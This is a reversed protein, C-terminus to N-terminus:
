VGYAIELPESLGLGHLELQSVTHLVVFLRAGDCRVAGSIQTYVWEWGVEIHM